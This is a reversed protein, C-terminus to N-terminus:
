SCQINKVSLHWFTLWRWPTNVQALFVRKFNRRLCYVCLYGVYVASSFRLTMLFLCIRPRKPNCLGLDVHTAACLSWPRGQWGISDSSVIFHIWPCLLYIRSQSFAGYTRTLPFPGRRKAHDIYVACRPANGLIMYRPCIAARWTVNLISILNEMNIFPLDWFIDHDWRFRPIIVAAAYHM